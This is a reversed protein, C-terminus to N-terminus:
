TLTLSFGIKYSNIHLMILFIKGKSVTEEFPKTIDVTLVTVELSPFQGRIKDHYSDPWDVARLILLHDLDSHFFGAEGMTDDLIELALISFIYTHFVIILHSSSSHM